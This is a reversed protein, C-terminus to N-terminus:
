GRVPKRTEFEPMTENEESFPVETCQERADGDRADIYKRQVYIYIEKLLVLVAANNPTCLERKEVIGLSCRM